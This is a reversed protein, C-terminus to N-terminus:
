GGFLLAHRTNVTLPHLPDILLKQFNLWANSLVALSPANSVTWDSLFLIPLWFHGLRLPVDYKQKVVHVRLHAILPSYVKVPCKICSSM